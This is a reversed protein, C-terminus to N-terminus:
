DIRSSQVEYLKSFINTFRKTTAPSIVISRKTVLCEQISRNFHVKTYPEAPYIAAVIENREKEEFAQEMNKGVVEQCLDGLTYLRGELIPGFTDLYRQKQKQGESDSDLLVVFEKAWGLYLRIIGDLSGAGNGPTFQIIEAEKNNLLEQMYALTYFDNKGEVMVIDPVMELQSPKYDLVDLIPQFYRTQDPHKNVFSRYRDITVDTRKANYDIIDSDFDFGKNRVVYTNELWHPNILHHSHTTYIITCDESLQGLSTLLQSQAGAHLNSAPEDFLYFIGQGPNAGRRTFKTVLSFVFFWRFGLSRENIFYFGDHDEISLELYQNGNEDTGPTFNAKTSTPRQFIENWSEFVDKTIRRELELLLQKLATKDPAGDSSIRQSIHREITATADVSRLIEGLLNRYFRQKSDETDTATLYIRRPFDFLFNPFYWISPMRARLFAVAAKWTEGYHNLPHSARARKNRGIPNFHWIGRRQKYNSDEFIYRDTVTFSDVPSEIRFGRQSLFKKLGENDDNNLEVTVAIEISGNFNGREAIPILANPDDRVLGLLDLPDSDDIGLELYDLAELITTKGSENLGVLVFISGQPHATLDLRLHRIGKFNSIEFRTYKM